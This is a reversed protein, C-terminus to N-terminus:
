GNKRPTHIVSKRAPRRNGQRNAPIIHRHLQLM